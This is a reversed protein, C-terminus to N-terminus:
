YYRMILPLTHRADVIIIFIDFRPTIFSTAYSFRLLRRFAARFRAAITTLLIL